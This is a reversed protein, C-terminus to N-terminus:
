NQRHRRDKSSSDPGQQDGPSDNESGETVPSGKGEGQNPEATSQASKTATPRVFKLSASNICYRLGTPVPGDNFVHGLHAGCTNCMVEVRQEALSYDMATEINGPVIPRWFSPWGTGSDFKAQSSFLPTGCCVCAYAGKAHNNWYRGSFAPETAKQRTVLYQSRTLQRSWEEDTKQVKRPKSGPEQAPIPPTFLPALSLCLGLSLCVVRFIM